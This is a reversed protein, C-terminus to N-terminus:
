SQVLSMPPCSARRITSAAQIENNATGCHECRFSMVIVERFYPITVLLMRTIGQEGCKMCLSEVEQLMQDEEQGAEGNVKSNETGEVVAGIAPFLQESM